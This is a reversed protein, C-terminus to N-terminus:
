AATKKPSSTTTTAATTTTTSPPTAPAVAVTYSTTPGATGPASPMTVGIVLTYTHGPKVPLPAFAVATSTGPDLSLHQTHFHVNDTHLERVSATVAVGQEGVNGADRLVLSVSLSSTPPVTTVGGPPAPGSPPPIAAPVLSVTVLELAHTTALSSSSTLQGVLTSLAGSSWANHHTVWVSRPLHGNGASTALVHRLTAYSGDAQELSTGVAELQDLARSASLLTSNENRQGSSANAAVGVDTLPELGLLGDLTRRLQAVADARAAFVAVFAPGSGAPPNPPVISRAAAAQSSSEQVIADLRQELRSRRLTPLDAMLQRVQRGVATSRDALVSGQQAFSRNVDRRYPASANQVALVGGVALAILVLTAASLLLLPGASRRRSRRRRDRPM